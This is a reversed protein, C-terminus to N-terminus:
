TNPACLDFGQYLKKMDELTCISVGSEGIKGYIDPRENPDRGYLTVSDFATSLRKAPEGESLYHFRQNTREPTGEGAFMRKPDEDARKFPFVGATYPFRGPVNELLGWRLIEGWDEFRPLAVKPIRTGSLTETFLPTKIERDRIKVTYENQRYTEKLQPWEQLFQKAEPTLRSEVEEQAQKLQILAEESQSAGETKQLLD